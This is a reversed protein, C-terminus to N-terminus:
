SWSSERPWVDSGLPRRWLFSGHEKLLQHTVSCWSEFFRCSSDQSSWCDEGADKVWERVESLGVTLHLVTDPRLIMYSDIWYFTVRSDFTRRFLGSLGRLNAGECDM